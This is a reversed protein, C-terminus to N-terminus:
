AQGEVAAMGANEGLVQRYLDRLRDAVVPLAYEQAIKVVAAKGM